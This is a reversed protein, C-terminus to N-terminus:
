FVSDTTVTEPVTPLEAPADTLRPQKGSLILLIVVSVIPMFFYGLLIGIFYGIGGSGGFNECVYYYAIYEFVTLCVAAILLLALTGFLPAVFMVPITDSMPGAVAAGILVAVWVIYLVFLIIVTTMLMKTRTHKGKGADSIRGLLYIDGIPIFELWVNRIGTRKAMRMIAIANMVYMAIGFLLAVAYIALFIGFMAGFAEIFDADFSIGQPFEGFNTDPYVQYDM